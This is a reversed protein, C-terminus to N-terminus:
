NRGWNRFVNSKFCSRNFMLDNVKKNIERNNVDLVKNPNSCDISEIRANFEEQVKGNKKLMGYFAEDDYGWGVLAEEYGNVLLFDNKWFCCTGASWYEKHKKWLNTKFTNKQLQKCEDIFTKNLLVDIDTVLILEKTANLVSINRAHNMHWLPANLIRIINIQPNNLSAVWDGSHESDDYDVFILEDNIDLM